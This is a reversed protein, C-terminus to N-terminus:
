PTGEPSDEQANLLQGPHTCAEALDVAFEDGVAAAAQIHRYV